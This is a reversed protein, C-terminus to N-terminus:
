QILRLLNQDLNEFEHEILLENLFDLSHTEGQAIEMTNKKLQKKTIVKEILAEPYSVIFTNKRNKSIANLVETRLLVNANDTDEIQYPRKYSAPYFFIKKGTKKSSKDTNINELTNYFYVASEKDQLIFIQPHEDLKAVASAVFGISSGVLGKLHITAEEKKLEEILKQIKTSNFYNDKISSISDLPSLNDQSM